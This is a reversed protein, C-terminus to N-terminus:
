ILMMALLNYNPTVPLKVIDSKNRPITINSEDPMEWPVEGSDWNVPIPEMEINPILMVKPLQVHVSYNNSVMKTIRAKIVFPKLLSSTFITNYLVFLIQLINM